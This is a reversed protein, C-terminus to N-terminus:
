VKLHITAGMLVVTKDDNIKHFILKGTRTDTSPFVGRKASEIMWSKKIFGFPEGTCRPVPCPTKKQHLVCIMYDESKEANGTYQKHEISSDGVSHQKKHDGYYKKLIYEQCHKCWISNSM